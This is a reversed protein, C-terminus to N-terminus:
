KRGGARFPSSETRVMHLIFVRWRMEGGPLASGYRALLEAVDRYYYRKYAGGSIPTLKLLMNHAREPSCRLFKRVDNISLTRKETAALLDAAITDIDQRIPPPLKYRPM